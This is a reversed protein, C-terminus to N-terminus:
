YLLPGKRAVLTMLKDWTLLESLVSFVPIESSVCRASDKRLLDNSAPVCPTHGSTSGGVPGRCGSAGGERGQGQFAPAVWSQGDLLRKCLRSRPLTTRRAGDPRVLYTLWAVAETYVHSVSAPSTPGREGHPRWLPAQQTCGKAGYVQWRGTLLARLRNAAGHGEQDPSLTLDGRPMRLNSSSCAVRPPPFTVKNIGFHDLENPSAKLTRPAPLPPTVDVHHTSGRASSRRRTVARAVDWVRPAGPAQGDSM